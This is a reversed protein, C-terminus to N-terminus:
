TIFVQSAARKTRDRSFGDLVALGQELEERSDLAHGKLHPNVRLRGKIRELHAPFEPDEETAPAKLPKPLSLILYLPTLVCFAYLTILSWLVVSGLWPAVQTALGVLQATQNAVVVVFGTILLLSVLMTLRALTKRM